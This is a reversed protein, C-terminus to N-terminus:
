LQPERWASYTPEPVMAVMYATGPVAVGAPRVFVIRREEQYVGTGAHLRRLWEAAADDAGGARITDADAPGDGAAWVEWAPPCVHPRFMGPIPGELITGECTPCTKM